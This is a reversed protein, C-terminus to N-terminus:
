SSEPDFVTLGCARAVRGLNKDAAIFEVGQGGDASSSSFRGKDRLWLASALQIGDAARLIGFRAVLDPLDSLTQTTMELVNLSFMWDFQFADRAAEFARRAQEPKVGRSRVHLFRQALARHVEAFTLISSFVRDRSRLREIVADTGRERLYCKVLASSDVYLM